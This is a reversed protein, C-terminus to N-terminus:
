FNPMEIKLIDIIIGIFIFFVGISLYKDVNSIDENLNLLIKEEHVDVYCEVINQWTKKYSELEDNCKYRWDRAGPVVCASNMLLSTTINEVKFTAYFNYEECANTKGLCYCRSKETCYSDIFTCKKLGDKKLQELKEHSMFGFSLIVVGILIGIHGIRTM